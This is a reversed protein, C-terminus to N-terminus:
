KDKDLKWGQCWGLKIKSQDVVIASCVSSPKFM